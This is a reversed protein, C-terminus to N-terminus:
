GADHRDLAKSVAQKIVERGAGYRYFSEIQENIAAKLSTEVAAHIIRSVNEGSCFKEVAAKVDADVQASYETFAHLISHKMYEVELRVIPISLNDRSM